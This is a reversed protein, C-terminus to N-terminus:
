ETQESIEIPLENNDAMCTSFYVRGRNVLNVFNLFFISVRQM